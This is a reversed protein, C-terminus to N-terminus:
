TISLSQTIIKQKSPDAMLELAGYHLMDVYGFLQPYNIGTASTIEKNTAINHLVDLYTLATSAYAVAMYSHTACSETQNSSLEKKASTVNTDIKKALFKLIKVKEDKRMPDHAFHTQYLLTMILAIIILITIILIIM